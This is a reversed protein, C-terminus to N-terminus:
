RRHRRTKKHSKKHRLTKKNQRRRGGSLRSPFDMYGTNKLTLEPIRVNEGPENTYVFEGPVRPEGAIEYPFAADPVGRNLGRYIIPECAHDGNYIPLQSEGTENDADLRMVEGEADHFIYNFNQEGRGSPYMNNIEELREYKYCKPVLVRYWKGRKLGGEPLPYM